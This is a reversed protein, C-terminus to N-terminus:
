HALNFYFTKLKQEVNTDGVVLLILNETTSFVLVLRFYSGTNVESVPRLSPGLPTIRVILYGM